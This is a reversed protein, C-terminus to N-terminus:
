TNIWRLLYRFYLARRIAAGPLIDEAIGRIDALNERPDAVAVGIDRTERHLRSGLWVPLVCGASWM